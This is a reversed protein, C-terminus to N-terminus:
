LSRKKEDKKRKTMETNVCPRGTTQLKEETSTKEERHWCTEGRCHRMM